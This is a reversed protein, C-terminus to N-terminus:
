IRERFTPLATPNFDSDIPKPPPTDAALAALPLPLLATLLKLAPKMRNKEPTLTHNIRFSTKM